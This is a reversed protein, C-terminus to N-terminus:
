FCAVTINVLPNTSCGIRREGFGEMLGEGERGECGKRDGGGRGGRVLWGRGVRRVV